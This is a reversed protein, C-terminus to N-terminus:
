IFYAKEEGMIKNVFNIGIQSKKTEELTQIHVQVMFVKAKELM